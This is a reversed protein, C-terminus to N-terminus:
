RGALVRVLWVTARVIAVIAILGGCACVAAVVAMGVIRVVLAASEPLSYLVRVLLRGLGRRPPEPTLTTAM